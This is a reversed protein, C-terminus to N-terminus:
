EITDIHRSEGRWLYRIMMTGSFVEDLVTLTSLNGISYDLGVVGDWAMPCM